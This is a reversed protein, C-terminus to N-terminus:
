KVFHFVGTPRRIFIYTPIHSLFSKLEQLLFSRIQSNEDKQIIPSKSFQYGRCVTKKFFLRPMIHM